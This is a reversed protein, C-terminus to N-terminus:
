TYREAYDKVDNQLREMLLRSVCSSLHYPHNQVLDFFPLKGSQIGLGIEDRTGFVIYELYNIIKSVPM